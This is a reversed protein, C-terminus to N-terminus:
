LVFGVLCKKEECPLQPDLLDRIRGALNEDYAM